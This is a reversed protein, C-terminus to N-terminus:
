HVPATHHLTDLQDLGWARVAEWGQELSADVASFQAFDGGPAAAPAPVRAYLAEEAAPRTM